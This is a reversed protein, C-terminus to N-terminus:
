KADEFMGKKRGARLGSEEIEGKVKDELIKLSEIIKAVSEISRTLKTVDHIPKGNDDYLLLDVNRFYERLKDISVYVDELLYMTLTKSRETYFSMAAEIVKDIKHEKPFSLTKKVEVEKKTWDPISRFDSRFDCMYYVYSLEAIAISKDKTKDRNWIKAFPELAYAEPQILIQHNSIQFLQM